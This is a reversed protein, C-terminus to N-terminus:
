LRDEDTTKSPKQSIPFSDIKEMKRKRRANQAFPRPRSLSHPIKRVDINEIKIWFDCFRSSPEILLSSKV